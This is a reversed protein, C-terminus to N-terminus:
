GPPKGLTAFSRLLQHTQELAGQAKNFTALQETDTLTVRGLNLSLARTQADIHDRLVDLIVALEGTQHLHRFVRLAM